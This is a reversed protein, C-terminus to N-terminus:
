PDFGGSFIVLVDTDSVSTANTASLDVRVTTDTTGAVVPVSLTWQLMSGPPMTAVTMSASSTPCVASGTVVSCTWQENLADLGASLGFNVMINTPAATGQNELTATYVAPKSYQVYGNGDDVLTLVLKLSTIAVNQTATTAANYDSDGTQDAAITCTGASVMTVTTGSVTCVGTTQSSYVIVNGSNPATSTALPNIAFTGNAAFVHSSPSQASFTITENAKGITVNQTATTADNYNSNGSQDAAITCTGANVMTVTTGSVTCVGTTQSSYVIANGSNPAASTALPNIAFTGNPAFTHSSPSQASFTITQNAKGIQLTTNATGALYNSNGAQAADIECQGALIGTVLGAATVSCITPTNTSFTVANNSGGGTATVNGTGAFVVQPLAGFVIAQSAQTITVSQGTSACAVSAANNKADGSYAATWYYTGVGTPAYSASAYNGNGSAAVISTFLPAGACTSDGAGYLKLTITGTPSDGAALVAGDTVNKGFEGGASATAGLTPSAPAVTLTAYNSPTVITGDLAGTQTFVARYRMGDQSPDVHAITYTTALAGPIDTFTTTGAPASQWQVTAAPYGAFSATFSAPQGSALALDGPDATINHYDVHVVAADSTVSGYTNTYTVRYLTGDDWPEAPPLAISSQTAGDFNTWTTGGDTSEEWQITADPSGSAGSYLNYFTNVDIELSQPQEYIVPAGDVKLIVAKTAGDTNYAYISNGANNTVVAYYYNGDQSTTVNSLTLTTSTAGQILVTAQKHVLCYWQVTPAPSGSLINFTLTTSGGAPLERTSPPPIESFVPPFYIVTTSLQVQASAPYTGDGAQNLDITCTATGSNFNTKVFSVMGTASVTCASDTTSADVSFVIPNSSAGKAASIVFTSGLPVSGPMPSASINPSPPVIHLTGAVYYITYNSSTLGSCNIPYDGSPTTPTIPTPTTACALSGGLVSPNEGNVFGYYSVTLPPASGGFSMSQNNAVVQLGAPQVTLTAASTAVTGAANIFLARYRNGNWAVQATLTLFQSTQGALNSYNVGGDTSVQWQITPYPNANAEAEFQVTQGYTTSQDSPNLLITALTLPAGVVHTYPTVVGGVIQSVTHSPQDIEPDSSYGLYFAQLPHQGQTLASTTYTAVGNVLAVTAITNVGDTIDVNGGSPHGGAASSTVNVTITVSQGYASPNPSSTITTATSFIPTIEVLANGTTSGNEVTGTIQSYSPASTPISPAVYNSGGGGGGGDGLFAYGGGGGGGYYGAGGGGGDVDNNWSVGTAGSAFYGGNAGSSGNEFTVSHGGAGGAGGGTQTGPGGGSGDISDNGSGSDGAKGAAGGSGGAFTGSGGGGGGGAVVLLSGASPPQNAACQTSPNSTAVFSGYGGRGQGTGNYPVTFMTGPTPAAYLKQGPTVAAVVTVIGGQGGTGGYGTPGRQGIATVQVYAAGSPVTFTGIASCNYGYGPEEAGTWVNQVASADPAIAGSFFAVGIACIRRVWTSRAHSACAPAFGGSVNM